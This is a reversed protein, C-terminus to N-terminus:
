LQSVDIHRHTAPSPGGANATPLNAARLAADWDVFPSNRVVLGRKIWLTQGVPSDLEIGSGRAHTHIHGLIVFRDGADVIETPQHGDAGV